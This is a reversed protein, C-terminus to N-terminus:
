SKRSRKEWFKLGPAISRTRWNREYGGEGKAPVVLGRAEGEKRSFDEMQEPRPQPNSPTSPQQSGVAGGKEKRSPFPRESHGNVERVVRKRLGLRGGRLTVGIQGPPAGVPDSFCGGKEDSKSLWSVDDERRPNARDWIKGKQKQSSQGQHLASGGARATLEM